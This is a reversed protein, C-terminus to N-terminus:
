SLGEAGYLEKRSRSVTSMREMKCSGVAFGQARKGWAQSERGRNMEVDYPMAWTVPMCLVTEAIEFTGTM